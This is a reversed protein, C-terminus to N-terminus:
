RCQLVSRGPPRSTSLWSTSLQRRCRFNARSAGKVIRDVYNAARRYQDTVDVGYSILGGEAAVYRFPYMTPVRHRLTTDIIAGRYLTTTLDPTVILGGDAERAIGKIDREIESPNKVRIGIMKLHRSHAEAQLSRLYYLGNGPATGTGYM